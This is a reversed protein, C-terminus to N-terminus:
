LTHFKKESFTKTFIYFDKHIQHLGKAVQRAKYRKIRHVWICSFINRELPLLIMHSTQNRLHSEYEKQMAEKWLPNVVVKNYNHLDNSQVMYCHMHMAPESSSLVHSPDEHQSRTM